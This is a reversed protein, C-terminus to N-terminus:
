KKEEEVYVSRVRRKKGIAVLRNEKQYIVIEDAELVRGDEVIKAEGRLVIVGKKLDYEAYNAWAKRGNEKVRVRGKAIIKVPKNNEDLLIVVEDARLVSSNRTLIVNGRYVLRNKEFELSDAEATISVALALSVLSLLLTFAKWRM